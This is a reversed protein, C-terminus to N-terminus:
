CGKGKGIKSSTTTTSAGCDFVNTSSSATTTAKKRKTSCIGHHGDADSGHYFNKEEYVPKL